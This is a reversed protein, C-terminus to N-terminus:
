INLWTLIDKHVQEKDKDNLVEHRSGEYLKLEAKCGADVVSNYVNKVGEGMSGVPDKDGAVFLYRKTKDLKPAWVKPNIMNLGTMLDRYGETTFPFGCDKDNIYKEVEEPITNLWDFETKYTKEAKGYAGTSLGELFKNPKKSWFPVMISAIIKGVGTAPNPGATGVFIYDDATNSYYGAITRAVFSGMSHGLLTFGVNPYREKMTYAAKINCEVLYNWGDKKAFFGRTGDTMGHGPHDIGYVLIGKQNLITAFENYREVYESMGHCIQLMYKVECEPEWIHLCIKNYKADFYERKLM